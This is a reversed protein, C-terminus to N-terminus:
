QRRPLAALIAGVYVPKRLLKCDPAALAADTAQSVDGTLLVAPVQTRLAIRMRKILELGDAGGPLNFDSIIVDPRWDTRAVAAMAEEASDAEVVRHDQSAFLVQLAERVTPDDEILLINMPDRRGTPMDPRHAVPPSPRGLPAEITFVSGRQPRSTVHIQHDLLKSLRQVISLGLGLGLNRDHAPNDIQQFEDFIAELQHDAIGIGTDMVEIRLGAGRRRCGVLVKGRRTYKIANSLLNRLIQELLKPDSRVVASCHVVRFELGKAEAHLRLESTVRDLLEGVAFDEFRPTVVGAELQNVQLLADLIDSMSGLVAGLKDVLSGAHPDAVRKALLDHILVLSQLPQRLDHSAASLFRSKSVNAQEARLKAARLDAQVTRLSANLQNVRTIAARL